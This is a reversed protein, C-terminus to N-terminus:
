VKDLQCWGEPQLSLRYGGSLVEGGRRRRQVSNGGRAGDPGGEKGYSNGRVLVEQCGKGGLQTGIEGVEKVHSNGKLAARLGARLREGKSDVAKLFAPDAIKDFVSCATACVLPNGAFTSGHDGAAYCSV